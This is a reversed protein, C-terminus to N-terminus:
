GRDEPFNAGNITATKNVEIVTDSVMRSCSEMRLVVDQLKGATYELERTYDRTLSNENTLSNNFTNKFVPLQEKIAQSTSLILAVLEQNAHTVAHQNTQLERTREGVKINLLNNIQSKRHNNRYLLIIAAMLLLGISGSVIGLYKQHRISGQQFALMQQQYEITRLYQQEEFDAQLKLLNRDMEESYIIENFEIFKEQYYSLHQVDNETQHIAIYQRYAELAIEKRDSEKANDLIKALLKKAEENHKQSFFVRALLLQNAAQYSKNRLQLAANHSASLYNEADSMRHQHFFLQGLAYNAEMTFVTSCSNGCMAFAQTIYGQGSDYKNLNIHCLGMNLFLFEAGASQGTERKTALSKAYYELAKQYYAMKYYLHGINDFAAAKASLDENLENLILSRFSYRLAEDYAAQFTYSVALDNLISAQNTMQNREAIPYVLELLGISERHKEFRRLALALIHAAEVIQLSDGMKNAETYAQRGYVVALDHNLELYEDALSQLVIVKRIGEAQRLTSKLSDIKLNQCSTERGIFCAFLFIVYHLFLKM